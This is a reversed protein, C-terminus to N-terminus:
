DLEPSSFAPTDQGPSVEFPVGNPFLVEAVVGQSEMDKMRLESDWQSAADLGPQVGGQDPAGLEEQSRVWEDFVGLSHNEVYDRYTARSARVHGDVSIIATREM